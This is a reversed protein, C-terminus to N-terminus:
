TVDSIHLLAQSMKDLIFSIPNLTVFEFKLSNLQSNTDRDHYWSLADSYSTEILTGHLHFAHFPLFRIFVPGVKEHDPDRQEMQGQEKTHAGSPM